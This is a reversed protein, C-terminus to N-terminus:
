QALSLAAVGRWVAQKSTVQNNMSINVMIRINKIGVRPQAGRKRWATSLQGSMVKHIDIDDGFDGNVKRRRISVPAEMKITDKLMMEVYRSHGYKLIQNFEEKTDVDYW